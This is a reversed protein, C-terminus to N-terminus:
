GQSYPPDVFGPTGYFTLEVQGVDAKFRLLGGAPIAYEKLGRPSVVLSAKSSWSVATGVATGSTKSTNTLPNQWTYDITIVDGLTTQGNVLTVVGSPLDITYDTTITLAVGDAYVVPATIPTHATAQLVDAGGTSVGIWEGTVFDDGASIDDAADSFGLVTGIHTDTGDAGNTGTKWLADFYLPTSPDNDAHHSITFKSTDPDWFVTWERNPEPVIVEHIADRVAKALHEPAEYTGTPVVATLEAGGSEAKFNLKNNSATLTVPAWFYSKEFHDVQETADVSITVEADHLSRALIRNMGSRSVPRMYLYGGANVQRVLGSKSM